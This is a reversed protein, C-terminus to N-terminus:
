RAAKKRRKGEDELREILWMRVLASVGLGKRDAARKLQDHLKEDIRLSMLGKRAKPM